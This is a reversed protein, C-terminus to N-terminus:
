LLVLTDSAGAKHIAACKLYLLYCFVGCYVYLKNIGNSLNASARSAISGLEETYRGTAEAGNQSISHEYGACILVQSTVSTM